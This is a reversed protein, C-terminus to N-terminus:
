AKEAEDQLRHWMEEVGLILAWKALYTMDLGRHQVEFIRLADTYQKESGGSKLAWNLKALLTDEPRSVKVKMGSVTETYKRAFRSRDFAEATLIWFDVKDGDVVDILNFMSMNSIAEHIADASLYYVPPPFARTLMKIDSKKIAVVVDIDHTSRPEGQLSSALSGTLMYDIGIRDLTTIVKALLEQQSM